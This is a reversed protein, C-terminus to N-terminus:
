ECAVPGLPNPNPVGCISWCSRDGTECACICPLSDLCEGVCLAEMDQCYELCSIGDDAQPATTEAARSPRSPVGYTLAGALLSILFLGSLKVPNM